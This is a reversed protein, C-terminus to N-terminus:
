GASANGDVYDIYAEDLPWSNIRGEPGTESNDIPGDYFRFAETAAYPVRADLWAQKAADLNTASPSAVLTAVASQLQKAGTLTAEYSDRVHETYAKIAAPADTLEDAKQQAGGCACLISLSLCLSRM